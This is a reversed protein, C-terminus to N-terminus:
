VIDIGAVEIKKNAIFDDVSTRSLNLNDAYDTILGALNEINDSKSIFKDPNAIIYDVAKEIKKQKEGEYLYSIIGDVVGSYKDTDNKLEKFDSIFRAGTSYGEILYDMWNHTGDNDQKHTVIMDMNMIALSDIDKKQVLTHFSTVIDNLYAIEKGKQKVIVSSGVQESTINKNKGTYVIQDHTQLGNITIFGGSKKLEMTVEDKGEGVDLIDRDGHSLTVVVKDDGKGLYINASGKGSHVTDNGEGLSIYDDGKSIVEDNHRSGYVIDDGKHTIVVQNKKSMEFTDANHSGIM